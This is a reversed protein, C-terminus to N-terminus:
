IHILSLAVSTIVSERFWKTLGSIDAAVLSTRYGYGSTTKFTMLKMAYYVFIKIYKPDVFNRLTTQTYKGKTDLIVLIYKPCTKPTASRRFSSTDLAVNRAVGCMGAIATTSIAQSRTVTLRLMSWSSLHTHHHMKGHLACFICQTEFFWAIAVNNSNSSFTATTQNKSVCHYLTSYLFMCPLSFHQQLSNQTVFCFKVFHTNPTLIRQHHTTQTIHQVDAISHYSHFFVNVSRYAIYAVLCGIFM